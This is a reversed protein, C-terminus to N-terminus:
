FGFMVRVTAGNDNLRATVAESTDKFSHHRFEFVLKINQEYLYQAGFIIDWESPTSKTIGTVGDVTSTTDNFANGKLWDYRAYTIFNKKPQWNLQDFGGHWKFDRNFGTPNSDRNWLLQNELWVPFGFPALSLTFDPGIRRARNPVQAGSMIGNVPNAAISASTRLADGYTNPSFYGVVGFSQNYWRMVWRGYVDKATNNDAKANSGNSVGLHYEAWFTERKETDTIPKGFTLMGNVEAIFQPESYRFLFDNPDGGVVDEIFKPSILELPLREYILYQNVSLRVKGSAYGLPLHTIGALLNVSDRPAYDGLLNNWWFKAVEFTPSETVFQVHRPGGTNNAEFKGTPTFEWAKTEFMPFEIFTSLHSGIPSTLFISLDELHLSSGVSTASTGDSAERKETRYDFGVGTIISLPLTTPITITGHSIEIDESEPKADKGFFARYGSLRFTAGAANLSGWMTHCRSCEVGYRRSYSPVAWASETLLILITVTLVSFAVMSRAAVVASVVPKINM